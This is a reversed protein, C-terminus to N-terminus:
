HLPLYQGAVVVVYRMAMVGIMVLVSAGVVGRLSRGTWPLFVMIMPLFGGLLIEIWVFYPQFKGFLILHAVHLAEQTSTLLVLIDNGVLFLDAIIIGGMM